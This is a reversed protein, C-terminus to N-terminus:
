CSRDSFMPRGDAEEYTVEPLIILKITVSWRCLQIGQLTLMQNSLMEMSLFISMVNRRSLVKIDSCMYSRGQKSCVPLRAVNTSKKIDNYTGMSDLAHMIQCTCFYENCCLLINRFFYTKNLKLEYDFM